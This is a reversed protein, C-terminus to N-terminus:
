HTEPQVFRYGTGASFEATLAFRDGRVLTHHWEVPTGHTHSLRNIFFAAVDHACQLQTRDAATYIVAHVDERGHDLRIGTRTTVETYLGPSSRVV